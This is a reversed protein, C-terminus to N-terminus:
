KGHNINVTAASGPSEVGDFGFVEMRNSGSGSRDVEWRFLGDSKM